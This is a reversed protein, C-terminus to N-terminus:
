VKVKDKLKTVAVSEGNDWKCQSGGALEWDKMAVSAATDAAKDSMASAFPYLKTQLQNLRIAVWLQEPGLKAAISGFMWDSRSYSAKLTPGVEVEFGVCHVPRGNSQSAIMSSKRVLTNSKKPGAVVADLIVPDGTMPNGSVLMMCAHPRPKKPNIKPLRAFLEPTLTLKVTAM